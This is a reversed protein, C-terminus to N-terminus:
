NNKPRQWPTYKKEILFDRWGKKNLNRKATGLYRLGLFIILVLIFFILHLPYGFLWLFFPLFIFGAAMGLTVNSTLWIVLLGIPLVCLFPLPSLALSVGLGSAAGKGGRFKLFVPWCHGIVAALGAAYVWLYSVELARAIFIAAVAKGVDIVLVALGVGLGLERTANLAGMNGGGMQRIDGGKRWRGALYATPIAGLLLAILISLAETM